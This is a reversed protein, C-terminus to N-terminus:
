MHETVRLGIYLMVWGLGIRDLLGHVEGRECVCVCVCMFFFRVQSEQELVLWPFVSFCCCFNVGFHLLCAPFFGVLFEKRSSSSCIQLFCAVSDFRLGLCLTLSTEFMWVWKQPSLPLFFLLTKHSPSALTLALPTLWWVCLCVSLCLRSSVGPASCM